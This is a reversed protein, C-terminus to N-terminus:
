SLVCIWLRQKLKPRRQMERQQQKRGGAESQQQQTDEQQEQQQQAGAAATESDTKNKVGAGDGSKLRREATLVSSSTEGKAAAAYSVRQHERQQRALTAATKNTADAASGNGSHDTEVEATEETTRKWRHIGCESAAVVELYAYTAREAAM